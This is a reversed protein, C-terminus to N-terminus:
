LKAYWDDYKMKFEDISNCRRIHIPLSNWSDVARVTFVNQRVSGKFSPKMVNLSCSAYRTGVTNSISNVSKFWTDKDVGLHGSQLRRMLLM